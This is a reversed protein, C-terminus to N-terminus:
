LKGEAKAIAQEAKELLSKKVGEYVNVPLKDSGKRVISSLAKLAELLEEHVNVARVIYAANEKAPSVASRCDAVFEGGSGEVGAWFQGPKDTVKWPTPTPTNM